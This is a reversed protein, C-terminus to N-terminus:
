GAIEVRYNLGGSKDICLIWLCHFKNKDGLLILDYRNTHKQNEYLVITNRL